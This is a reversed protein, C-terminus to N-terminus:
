KLVIKQSIRLDASRVFYIGAPLNALSMAKNETLTKKAVVAGQMNIVQVTASASGINVLSLNRGVLNFKGSSIIKNIIASGGGEQGGSGSCGTCTGKWGVECLSFGYSVPSAAKNQGKFKLAEAQGTAVDIAPNTGTWSKQFESWALDVIKWDSSAAFPFVWTNYGNAAENWGLELFAKGEGAEGMSYTVCVGEKGSINETTKDAGEYDNGDKNRWNFGFGAGSPDEDTGGLLSFTVDIAKKAINFGSGGQPAGQDDALQLAAEPVLSTGSTADKVDGANTGYDYGFWWGGTKSYCPSDYGNEATPENAPDAWCTIAGPTKVQLSPFADIDGRWLDGAANAMGAAMGLIALAKIKNM